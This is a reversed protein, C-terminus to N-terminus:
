QDTTQPSACRVLLTGLNRGTTKPSAGQAVWHALTALDKKKGDKKGHM